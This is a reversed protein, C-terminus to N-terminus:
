VNYIRELAIIFKEPTALTDMTVRSKAATRRTPQTLISRVAAEGDKPLDTKVCAIVSMDRCIQVQLAPMFGPSVVEIQRDDKDKREHTVHIVHWPGSHLSQVASYVLNTATNMDPQTPTDPDKSSDNKARERCISRLADTAMASTEDVVVVGVNKLLETSHNQGIAKLQSVGKYKMRKVGQTLKIFEPNRLVTFGEAYDIYLITNDAPCLAQALQMSLVTKGVGYTGYILARLYPPVSEMDEMSAELAAM